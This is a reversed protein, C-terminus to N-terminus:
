HAGSYVLPKFGFDEIRQSNHCAQCTALEPKRRILKPDGSEAHASGPGHCTECGVQALDPTAQESVFGGPKGYGTTHCEFCEKLENPKLKPQMVAISRWSHAKKSYKNFTAYQEEHCQSCAKSGVFVPADAAFLAPASLLTLAASLILGALLRPM